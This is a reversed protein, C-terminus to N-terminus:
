LRRPDNEPYSEDDKDEQVDDEIYDTDDDEDIDEEIYEDEDDDDDDDDDDDEDDIDELVDETENFDYEDEKLDSPNDFEDNEETYNDDELEVEYVDDNNDELDRDTHFDDNLDDLDDDSVFDDQDPNPRNPNYGNRVTYGREAIERNDNDPKKIDDKLDEALNRDNSFHNKLDKNTSNNKDITNM